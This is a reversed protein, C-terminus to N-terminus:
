PTNKLVLPIYVIPSHIDFRHFQSIMEIQYPPDEKVTTQVSYRDDWLRWVGEFLLYGWDFSSKPLTPHVVDATYVEGRNYGHEATDFGLDEMALVRWYGDGLHYRAKWMDSSPDYQVDTEVPTGTSLVYEDFFVWTTNISDYQYIYQRDDRWSVEAWGAEMWRDGNDAYVRETVFRQPTGSHEVGPNVVHNRGRVGQNDQDIKPGIYHYGTSSTVTECSREPQKPTTSIDVIREARCADRQTDAPIDVDGTAVNAPPPIFSKEFERCSPIDQESPPVLQFRFVFGPHRVIQGNNVQFLYGALDRFHSALAKVELKYYDGDPFKQVQFHYDGNGLTIEPLTVGRTALCAVIDERVPQLSLTAKEGIPLGVIEVDVDFSHWRIQPPCDPSPPPSPEPPPYPPPTPTNPPPYPSEQLISSLSGSNEDWNDQAGLSDTQTVGIAVLILIIIMILYNSRKM